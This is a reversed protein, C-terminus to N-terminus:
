QAVAPLQRKGLDDVPAFCSDDPVLPEQQLYSSISVEERHCKKRERVRERM